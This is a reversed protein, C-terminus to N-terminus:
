KKNIKLIEVILIDNSIKLFLLFIKM